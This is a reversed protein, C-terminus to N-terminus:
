ARREVRAARIISRVADNINSGDDYTVGNITINDGMPGLNKQLQKIAAVVDDNTANQNRFMMYNGIAGLNNSVGVSPNLNLMGGLTSAGNEVDSLDLIPRITPNVDIGNSLIESIKRSANNVGMRASDAMGYAANYATKEGASLENVFGLVANLGIKAMERSPSHEDLAKKAANKAANAMARAKASALYTNASIGNAFGRVLYAGAINFQGYYSRIAVVGAAVPTRIAAIVMPSGSKIGTAFYAITKKGSDNFQKYSSSIASLSSDMMSTVGNTASGVGLGSSIGTSLKAALQKGVTSFIESSRLVQNVIGQMLTQISASLDPVNGFAETLSNVLKLAANQVDTQGSQLVSVLEDISLDAMKELAEQLKDLGSTDVSKLSLLLNKLTLLLDSVSQIKEIDFSQIGIDFDGLYSVIQKLNDGFSAVQGSDLLNEKIITSVSSVMNFFPAAAIMFESLNAGVEALSSTAGAALGGIISGIFEGIASGIKNLLSSGKDIIWEVGPIQKIAGFAALIAAIEGIALGVEAIGVMAPAAIGSFAACAVLIGSIAGIGIALNEIDESSYASIAEGIAIFIGAVLEVAATAIQPLYEKVAELVGLILRFIANALEPIYDAMSTLTTTLVKLLFEVIIPVAEELAKLIEPLMGVFGLIIEKIGVLIDKVGNALAKALMTIGVAMLTLGAGALFVSGGIALIAGAFALLVTESGKLANMALGIVLIVAGLGLLAKGLSLLPIESLAKLAPVFANIAIAMLILSGAAGANGKMEDSFMYLEIMLIGLAALAKVLSTFKIAALSELVGALIKLSVAIAVFSLADGFSGHEFRGMLIMVGALEGILLSVALMAKALSTWKITSLSQLVGGLIKISGAFAIFAISDRLKFHKGTSSMAMMAIAMELILGTIGVMAQEFRDPNIEAINKLSSVLIRIAAAFAIFAVSDRMKFNKGFRMLIMAATLEIILATVGLLGQKLHEPKMEGIQQLAKVLIRLAIAMAVFGGVGKAGENPGIMTMAKSAAVLTMILELIALMSMALSDEDIESLIKMAFSLILVSAALMTMGKTSKGADNKLTDMIKMMAGLEVFLSVMATVSRGLADGDIMSLVFMSGALILISTAIGKIAEVKLSNQLEKLPNTIGELAKSIEDGIGKFGNEKFSKLVDIFISLPNDKTAKKNLGSFFSGIGALGGGVLIGALANMFEIFNEFKANAIKDAIFGIGKGLLDLANGGVQKVLNWFEGLLGLINNRKLTEVFSKFLGVIEDRLPKTSTKLSEFGTRIKEIVNAFLEWSPSLINQSVYDIFSSVTPLIKELSSSVYSIVGSLTESVKDVVGAFVENRRIFESLDVLYDGLAAVNDLITGGLESLGSNFIPLIANAITGLAQKGIDLVAFFGKFTRKIKDLTEESLQIRETFDHFGEIFTYLQRVTTPPFIDSWAEKIAETVSTILDYLNSFGELLLERGSTGEIDEILKNIPTGATDAAKALKKLKKIEAETYRSNDIEGKNIKEITELLIEGTLWGERLSKELSGTKEIMKDVAVDNDKATDYLLRKFAEWGIDSMTLKKQAIDSFNLTRFSERLSGKLLENLGNVPEAFIDYMANAMSTWLATAEKYNGFIIEFTNMWATSVADQTADIVDQFTRAEQAAKFAKIGFDDLGAVFDKLEKSINDSRDLGEYFKEFANGGEEYASRAQLVQTATLDYAETFEYLKDVVSSYDQFVKMMVESNFWATRSMAESSFMESMSFSKDADVVKYVDEATKEVVGLAQAAELARKRFEQTDMSANQISKWDDYKLAGKGMAQSLQYMARSATTANQGSLAAWNAIGQMATVSKELDQGTATFKSINSVMDTFNYSTEDTFWNLKELQANVTELAYGQSVLTAVSGTKEGFKKWGAAVNDVSLSKVLREGTSVAQNAIRMLAAVGIADLLSFQSISERLGKTMKGFTISKAAQGLGDLGKAAGDFNLFQKLKDLTSLSTQINQEFQRNDFQMEVVKSDILQSM